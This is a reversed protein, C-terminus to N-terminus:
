PPQAFTADSKAQLLQLEHQVALESPQPQAQEQLPLQQGKKEM